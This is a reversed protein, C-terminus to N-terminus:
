GGYAAFRQLGKRWLLITGGMMLAAWGWQRGLLALAAARDHAGTMLEVPLGIQFRFPLWDVVARLAPPFLEVPILYGSFVFFLTLWVDMVKLSSEMFFALCGITFSTLFTVLWAGLMAAVFAAWVVPDRTLQGAGTSALWIAAMPLAVVLRLPQAALNQVAYTLMPPIPRLLRLALTGQRIEFNMEWAVWSGTLQRVIFTALFYAVFEKQGFRGVPADRAVASWLALMILPMTTSFMWVLFEARYAVAEAFSVKFLTPLARATAPLKM